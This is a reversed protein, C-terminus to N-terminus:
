VHQTDITAILDNPRRRRTELQFWVHGNSRICSRSLWERSTSFAIALLLLTLWGPHQAIRLRSFPLFLKRPAVHKKLSLGANELRTYLLPSFFNGACYAHYTAPLCTDHLMETIDQSTLNLRYPITFYLPFLSSDPM